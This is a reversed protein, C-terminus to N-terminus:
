KKKNDPSFMKKFLNNKIELADLIESEKIARNNEIKNVESIQISRFKAKEWNDIDQNSKSNRMIESYREDSQNVNSLNSFESTENIKVTNKNYNGDAVSVVNYSIDKSARTTIVKYSYDKYIKNDLYSPTGRLTENLTNKKKVAVNLASEWEEAAVTAALQQSICGWNQGCFGYNAANQRARMRGGDLRTIESDLTQIDRLLNQYSDNVIREKGSLYKSNLNKDEIKRANITIKSPTIMLIKENESILKKLQEKNLEQNILIKQNSSILKPLVQKNVIDREIYIVLEEKNKNTTIKKELTNDKKNNAIILEKKINKDELVEKNSSLLNEQKEISNFATASASTLSWCNRALAEVPLHKNSKLDYIFNAGLKFAEVKLDNILDENTYKAGLLDNDCRTTNVSGLIIFNDPLSQVVKINQAGADLYSVDKLNIGKNFRTQQTACGTLFFLFFSILVKKM